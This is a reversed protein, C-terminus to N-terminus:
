HVFKPVNRLLFILVAFMKKAILVTSFHLVATTLYRGVSNANSMSIFVSLTDSDCTQTQQISWQM